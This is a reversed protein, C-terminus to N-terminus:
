TLKYRVVRGQWTITTAAAGTVMIDVSTGVASVTVDWAADTEMTAVSATSGVQTLTSGDPTFFTAYRVYGAAGTANGLRRAWVFVQVLETTDYDPSFRHLLTPTATTTVVEMNATGLFYDYVEDLNAKDTASMFGATSSSATAHLTGGSRNGHAHGHDSRALSTASGESNTSDTITSAAATTIDHKHDDRAFSTGSGASAASKTVNVPATAAPFAHAHDARALSTSTGESASAGAVATGAAATSVDHKHDIRAATVGTGAAAAAKTVNSPTTAAFTVSVTDADVTIGTGAGVHLTTSSFSLGDGAVVSGVAGASELAKIRRDLQQDVFVGEDFMEEHTTASYPGQTRLAIPQTIPVTREIVIADLNAPAVLFTVTGGADLGDGSVTYHTGLTKITESGGSPTVKVVLEAARIFRFTTPYATTVGNGTYSVSSTESSVAM